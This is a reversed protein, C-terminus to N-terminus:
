NKNVEEVEGKILQKWDIQRRWERPSVAFYNKFAKTFVHADEYGVSQAVGGISINSNKLYQQATNMRLSLMYQQPSENKYQRFLRTLYSRDIGIHEAVDVVTIHKHINVKIFLEARNVYEEAQNSPHKESTGSIASVFGWFRSMLEEFPMDKRKVLSCLIEGARDNDVRVVPTKGSLGAKECLRSAMTGNFEIWRYLWPENEDAKYYALEDPCILFMQGAGVEYEEGHVRLVGKGSYVYHLLYNNRMCPGFSHGSECQEEGYQMPYIDTPIFNTDPYYVNFFCEM